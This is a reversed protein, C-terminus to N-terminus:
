REGGDGRELMGALGMRPRHDPDFTAIGKPTGAKYEDLMSEAVVRAATEDCTSADVFFPVLAAIAQARLREPFQTSRSADSM